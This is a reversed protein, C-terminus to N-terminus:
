GEPPTTMGRRARTLQLVLPPDVAYFSLRHRDPVVLRRLVRTTALLLSHCTDHADAPLEHARLWAVLDDDRAGSVPTAEPAGDSEAVLQSMSFRRTRGEARAAEDLLAAHIKLAADYRWASLVRELSTSAGGLVTLRASVLFRGPQKRRLWPRREGPQWITTVTAHGLTSELIVLEGQDIPPFAIRSRRFPAM